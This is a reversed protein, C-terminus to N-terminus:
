GPQLRLNQARRDGSGGRSHRSRDAHRDLVSTYFSGLGLIVADAARLAELVGPSPPADPPDIAVRLVQAGSHPIASEDRVQRGDALNAVLNV